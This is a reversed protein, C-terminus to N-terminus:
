AKRRMQHIQPKVFDGSILHKMKLRELTLKARNAIYPNNDEQLSQLVDLPTSHNEALAFRIDLDKDHALAAKVHCPTHVNDAVAMRIETRSENALDALISPADATEAVKVLANQIGRNRGALRATHLIDQKVAAKTAQRPEPQLAATLNPASRQKEESKSNAIQKLRGTQADASDLDVPTIRNPSKSELKAFKDKLM